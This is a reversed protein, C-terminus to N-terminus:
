KDEKDPRFEINYMHPHNYIHMAQAAMRFCAEAVTPFDSTMKGLGGPPDILIGDYLTDSEASRRLMGCHIRIISPKETYLEVAEEISTSLIVEISTLDKVNIGKSLVLFPSFDSKGTRRTHVFKAPAITVETTRLLRQKPLLFSPDKYESFLTTPIEHLYM